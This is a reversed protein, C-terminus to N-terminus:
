GDLAMGLLEEGLAFGTSAGTGGTVIGLAVGKEPQATFVVEDASAYVGLWRETVDVATDPMVAKLEQLILEDVREDRFPVEADGYVHSDGVVLSGDTSQVIILHIGHRRHEPQLTDLLRGLAQGEPLNAFGDYRAFSLDSMIAGPLVVSQQPQVRLMQLTCQRVKAQAIAEPYLSSFDNGPCVVCHEAQLIRQSTEVHPLAIGRVSEGYYFNVGKSHQLWHALQGIADKSEVRQEHPSYLVGRVTGLFPLKDAVEAQSLMRCQEGMETQLFAEAVALAEPRQAPLYTGTHVISIGAQPAVDAWVKSSHMARQWHKGTRQGSVTVFGFNRISAGICQADREVVAVSLNERTAALATALGIIGGGVVVVDYKETM